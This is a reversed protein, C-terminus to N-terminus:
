SQTRDGYERLIELDGRDSRYHKGRIVIKCELDISIETGDTFSIQVESCPPNNYVRLSAITMNAAEHIEFFSQGM